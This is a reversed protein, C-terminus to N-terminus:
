PIPGKTLDVDLDTTLLGMIDGITPYMTTQGFILSEQTVAAKGSTRVFWGVIPIYRVYPIDKFIPLGGSYRTAIGLRVNSEYRSVERLELNSLQVETNVTHREIRPLQPNVTKNPEQIMSSSIYDFRFRLAQGSPDFVPTVQFVNGTTLGYLEAQRDRPLSKLAGLAGLPGAAQAAFFIESLQQAAQLVDTTQGLPLQASARPEVRALLRNTALVSTRQLIGVGIGKSQLDKRLGRLMPQVFLRDLDDEVAIIMEKLMQDAAAERANAVRLGTSCTKRWIEHLLEAEEAEREEISTSENMVKNLREPTIGLRGLKGILNRLERVLRCYEIELAVADEELGERVIEAEASSLNQKQAIRDRAAIKAQALKERQEKKRQEEAARQEPTMKELQAREAEKEQRLQVLTKQNDRLQKMQEDTPCDPSTLLGAQVRKQRIERQRQLFRNLISKFYNFLRDQGVQELAHLIELQQASLGDFAPRASLISELQAATIGNQQALMIQRDRSPANVIEKFVEPAKGVVALRTRLAELQQQTFTERGISDPTGFGDLNIARRLSPFWTINPPNRADTLKALEKPLNKLQLEPLHSGLKRLFTKMVETRYTRRGMSLVMLAEGLTTTGAPDPVMLRALLPNTVQKDFLSNPDFGLRRLIEPQYFSLRALRDADVDKLLEYNTCTAAPSCHVRASTLAIHAAENVHENIADRFLSLTAANLARSNSLHGEILELSENTKQQGGPSSDSSLELTWLTMRAQPAPQDIKAIICKVYDIDERAGRMFVTKSDNFAWLFTRKVPDTSSGNVPTVWMPRNDRARVFAESEAQAALLASRRQRNVAMQANELKSEADAIRSPLGNQEDRLAASRDNATKHNSEAEQNRREFEEVRSAAKDREGALRECTVRRAPDAPMPDCQGDNFRRDNVERDRQAGRLAITTRKFIANTAEAGDTAQRLEERLVEVRQQAANVATQADALDLEANTLERRRSAAEEVATRIGGTEFSDPNLMAMLRPIDTFYFLSVQDAEFRSVDGALADQLSSLAAKLIRTGSDIREAAENALAKEFELDDTEALQVQTAVWELQIRRLDNLLPSNDRMLQIAVPSFKVPDQLVQSRQQDISTAQTNGAQALRTLWADTNAGPNDQANAVLKNRIAKISTRLESIKTNIRNVVQDEGLGFPALRTNLAPWIRSVDRSLREVSRYAPLHRPLSNRLAPAQADASLNVLPDIRAKLGDPLNSAFSYVSTITSRLTDRTGAVAIKEQALRAVATSAATRAAAIEAPQSDGSPLAQQADSLKKEAAALDKLVPHDTDSQTKVYFKTTETTAVVEILDELDRIAAEDAKSSAVLRKLTDVLAAATQRRTEANAIALDAEKVAALVDAVSKKQEATLPVPTSAPVPDQLTSNAQTELPAAYVLFLCVYLSFIIKL